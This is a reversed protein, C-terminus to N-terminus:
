KYKGWQYKICDSLKSLLCIQYFTIHESSLLLESLWQLKPSKYHQVLFSMVASWIDYNGSFNELEPGQQFTTPNKKLIKAKSLNNKYSGFFM